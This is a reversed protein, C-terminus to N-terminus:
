LPREVEDEMTWLVLDFITRVEVIAAVAATRPAQQLDNLNM